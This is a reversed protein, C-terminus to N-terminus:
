YIVMSAMIEQSLGIIEEGMFIVALLTNGSGIVYFALPGSEIEGTLVAANWDGCRLMEPEADMKTSKPLLSSAYAAAYADDYEYSLPYTRAMLINSTDEPNAFIIVESKDKLGYDIRAYHDPFDFAFLDGEWRLFSESSVVTEVSTFEVSALIRDAHAIAENGVFVFAFLHNDYTFQMMILDFGGTLWTGPARFGHINGLDILEYEGSLM